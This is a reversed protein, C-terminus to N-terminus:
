TCSCFAVTESCIICAPLDVNGHPRKYRTGCALKDASLCGTKVHHMLLICCAACTNVVNNDLQSTAFAVTCRLKHKIAAFHGMASM